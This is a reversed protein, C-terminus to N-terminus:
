FAPTDHHSPRHARLPMVHVLDLELRVTVPDGVAFRLRQPGSLTLLLRANSPETLSLTALTIEGLHRAEILQAAFDGERAPPDNLLTIGDGPIM